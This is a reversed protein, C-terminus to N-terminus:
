KKSSTVTIVWSDLWSCERNQIFAHKKSLKWLIIYKGDPIRWDLYYKQIKSTMIRKQDFVNPNIGRHIVTIKEPDIKIDIANTIAKVLAPDGIPTEKEAKFKKCSCQSFTCERKNHNSKTHGCTCSLSGKM